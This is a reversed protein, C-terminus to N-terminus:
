DEREVGRQGVLAACLLAGVLGVCAGIVFLRDLGAVFAADAASRVQGRAKAPVRHIVSSLAGSSVAQSLRSIPLHDGLRDRLHSAVANQFVSGYAAVATAIGVQRFTNNIGAGVGPQDTPVVITALSGLPANVMGIGIGALLFGPLLVTWTSTADVRTMLLLGGAVVALGVGLPIRFPVRYSLKGAIPATVFALASLPLMRLGAQLASYGLVDQLYLTLYLLLGFLSASVAFAAFQAGVFSRRRFFRLDVMPDVARLEAVVFVILAMAAGGLSALVTISGWGDDDSEILGYVLLILAGAFLVFGPLDLRRVREPRSAPLRLVIITIAAAAIPLNVFFIWRWSLGTTLAGGVLPGIAVSAGTTAGWIGFATGRDKGNYTSGLIALSNSFMIAGGIGQVARFTDL